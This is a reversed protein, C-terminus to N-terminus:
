VKIAKQYNSESLTMKIKRNLCLIKFSQYFEGSYYSLYRVGKYSAYRCTQKTLSLYFPNEHGSLKINGIQKVM